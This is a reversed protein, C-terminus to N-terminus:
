AVLHRWESGVEPSCISGGIAVEPLKKPLFFFFLYIRGSPTAAIGGAAQPPQLGGWRSPPSLDPWGWHSKKKTAGAFLVFVFFLFVFFFFFFFISGALGNGSFVSFCLVCVWSLRVKKMEPRFVCFTFGVTVKKM